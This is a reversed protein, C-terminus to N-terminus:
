KSTSKATSVAATPTTSAPTLISTKIAPPRPNQVAFDCSWIGRFGCETGCNPNWAFACGVETVWQERAVGQHGMATTGDPYTYGINMIESMVLRCQDVTGNYGENWATEFPTDGKLNRNNSTYIGPTLVQFVTGPLLQHQQNAGKSDSVTKQANAMLKNNWKLPAHGERSRWKNITTLISEKGNMPSGDPSIPGYQTYNAAYIDKYVATATATAGVTTTTTYEPYLMDAYAWVTQSFTRQVTTTTVGSRVPSATITKAIPTVSSKATVSTTYPM